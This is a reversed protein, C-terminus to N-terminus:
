STACDGVPTASLLTNHGRNRTLNGKALKPAYGAVVVKYSCGVSLVDFLVERSAGFLKFRSSQPLIFSGHDTSVLGCYVGRFGSPSSRFKPGYILSRRKRCERPSYNETIDVIITQKGFIIPAVRLSAMLGVIILVVWIARMIAANADSTAQTEFGVIQKRPPM